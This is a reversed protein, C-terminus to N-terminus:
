PTPETEYTEEDRSDLILLNRLIKKGKSWLRKVKSPNMNLLAAVQEATLAYFDSHETPWVYTAHLVRRIEADAITEIAKVFLDHVYLWDHEDACTTDACGVVADDLEVERGPHRKRRQQQIQWLVRTGTYTRWYAIRETPLKALFQTLVDQAIDDYTDSMEPDHVRLLYAAKGASYTAVDVITAGFVYEFVAERLTNPVNELPGGLWRAYPDDDSMPRSGKESFVKPGFEGGCLVLSERGRVVVRTMDRDTPVVDPCHAGAVVGSIASAADVGITRTPVGRLRAKSVGRCRCVHGRRSWRCHGPHEHVLYSM